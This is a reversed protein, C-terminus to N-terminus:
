RMWMHNQTSQISSPLDTGCFKGLSPSYESGGDRIELSDYRCDSVYEVNFVETSLGIVTGTPLSITYICDANDPYPNPYSPSEIAGSLSGYSGGCTASSSTTTTTTTATNPDNGNADHTEFQSWDVNEDSTTTSTTTATNPDNGNMDHTEFQSWDVNEITTTTTTADNGNMNLSHYQIKFGPANGIWDSIFRYICTNSM